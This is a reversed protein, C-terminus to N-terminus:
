VGRLLSGHELDARGAVGLDVDRPVVAQDAGGNDAPELVGAERVDEGGAAVLEVEAVLRGDVVPESGVAGVVHIQNGARDAADPGVGVPRGIEDVVVHHDVGGHHM